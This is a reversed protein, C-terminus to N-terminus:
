VTRAGLRLSGCPEWKAEERERAARSAEVGNSEYARSGYVFRLFVWHDLNVSGTARIRAALAEANWFDDGFLEALEYVEGEDTMLRIVASRDPRCVIPGDESDAYFLDGVDALDYVAVDDNPGILDRM